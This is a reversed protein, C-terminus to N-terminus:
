GDNAGAGDRGPPPPTTPPSPAAPPPPEQKKRREKLFGYLFPVSLGSGIVGGFITGIQLQGLSIFPKTVEIQLNATWVRETIAAGTGSTPTWEVDIALLLLQSGPSNSSVSWRWDLRRDKLERYEQSEPKRNFETVDLVARARARYDKGFAEPL